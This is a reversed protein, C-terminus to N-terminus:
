FFFPMPKTLRIAPVHPLARSRTTGNSRDSPPRKLAQPYFAPDTEAAVITAGPQRPGFQTGSNARSSTM